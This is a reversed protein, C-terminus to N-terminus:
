NAMSDVANPTSADTREGGFLHRDVFDHFLERQREVSFNRAMELGGAVLRARLEDDSLLRRVDRLPSDFDNYLPQLGTVGPNLYSRSGVCDSCIVACGAAMAEVPPRHMGETEHPLAVFIESRNVLEAFEEQPKSKIVSRVSVGDKRLAKTLARALKPNKGGSIMVSGPDKPAKSNFLKLDIAEPIVEIPGNVLDKVADRVEPADAIRYAFRSLNKRLVPNKAHRVHLVLAILEVDGVDDPVLQWNTGGVVLVDYDPIKLEDVFRDRPISAWIDNSDDSEPTFYVYPDLRPHAMAHEFLIRVAIHGGRRSLYRRLFLIRKV